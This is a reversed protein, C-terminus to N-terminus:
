KSYLIKKLTRVQNDFKCYDSGFYELSLADAEKGPDNLIFEFRGSELRGASVLKLGRLSLFAALALDSTKYENM